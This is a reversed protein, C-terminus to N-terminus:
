KAGGVDGVDEPAAFGLFDDLSTVVFEGSEAEEAARGLGKEAAVDSLEEVLLDNLFRGAFVGNERECRGRDLYHAILAVHM